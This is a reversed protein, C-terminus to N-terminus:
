RLMTTLGTVKVSAGICDKSTLHFSLAKRSSFCSRRVTHAIAAGIEILVNQNIYIHKNGERDLLEGESMVHIIGASCSRMDEFVKEPIPIATSEREVSVVPEFKGFTLLEKLQEVIGRRKGHTIFVRNNELPSIHDQRIVAHRSDAVRAAIQGPSLTETSAEEEQVDGNVARRVESAAPSDLHVFPGTRTDRIVGAFQGNQKIIECAEKAREKPLGLSALVNAAIADNPLKARRYKEFFERMIRPKMIAEVRAKLDDGEEEPTVARRGLATLKIEQVRYGGETLGYAVSSGSLNRWKSGTPSMDM